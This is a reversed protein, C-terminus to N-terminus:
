KVNSNKRRIRRIIQAINGSRTMEVAVNNDLMNHVRNIISRPKDQTKSAISKAEDLAKLAEIKEPNSVHNHQNMEFVPNYMGSTKATARCHDSSFRDCRWEITNMPEVLKNNKYRNDRAITYYYGHHCLKPKGKKIKLIYNLYSKLFSYLYKVM